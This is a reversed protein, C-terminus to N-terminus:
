QEWREIRVNTVPDGDRYKGSVFACLAKYDGKLALYDSERMDDYERLEIGTRPNTYFIKVYIKPDRETTAAAPAAKAEELQRKMEEMQRKMEEVQRNHADQEQAKSNQLQAQLAEMKRQMESAQKAQEEQARRQADQEQAKAQQLQTQLAEMQKQMESTQQAQAQSRIADNLMTYMALATPHGAAAAQRYYDLAKKNAESGLNNYDENRKGLFFLADASGASAAKNLHYELDVKELAPNNLAINKLLTKEIGVLKDSIEIMKLIAPVHDQLVAQCLWYTALVNFQDSDDLLSLGYQYQAEADGSEAKVLREDREEEVAPEEVPEEQVEEKAPANLLNEYELAKNPDAETGWGNRYYEVMRKIADTNGLSAAIKNWRFAEKPNEPKDSGFGTVSYIAVLRMIEEQSLYNPDPDVDLSEYKEKYQKYNGYIYSKCYYAAAIQLNKTTGCENEYCWGLQAMAWADGLDTAKKWWQYAKDRDCATGVGNCFCWAYNTMGTTNGCEASVEYLKFALQEDKEKGNQGVQIDYGLDNAKAGAQANGNDAAMKFWPLATDYDKKELLYEGVQLQANADGAHAATLIDQYQQESM